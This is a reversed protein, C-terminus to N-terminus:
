QGILFRTVRFRSLVEAIAASVALSLLFCLAAVAVPPVGAVNVFCLVVWILQQHFLYVGFSNRDLLGGKVKELVARMSGFVRAALLAGCLRSALTICPLIAAPIGGGSCNGLAFFALNGILLFPWTPGWFRGTDVQRAACGLAFIPAYACAASVQFCSLPLFKGLIAGAVFVAVSFLLVNRPQLAKKGGVTAFAEFMVFVVFLMLLFWLQSPGAGLVFKKVVDSWGNFYVWFPVAWIISVFLYPVLLRACKKRLVKLSNGYRSTELKLYGWIYGSILMFLPVQVTGLWNAFLGLTASEEAPATFWHGTYISCAHTMVVLLIALAKMPGSLSLEDEKTYRYGRTITEREQM